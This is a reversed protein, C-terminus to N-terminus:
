PRNGRLSALHRRAATRGPGGEEAIAELAAELGINGSIRDHPPTPDTACGRSTCPPIGGPVVAVAPIAEIGFIRFLRPDITAGSKRGLVPGSTGPANKGARELARQIVSRSWADLDGGRAKGPQRLVQDVMDRALDKATEQARAPGCWAALLLACALAPITKRIPNDNM